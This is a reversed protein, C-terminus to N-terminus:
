TMRFLIVTPMLMVLTIPFPHTYPQSLPPHMSTTNGEIGAGCDISWRPEKHHPDIKVQAQKRGRQRLRNSDKSLSCPSPPTVPGGHRSRHFCKVVESSWTRPRAASM